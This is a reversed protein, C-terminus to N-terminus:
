GGLRTVTNLLLRALPSRPSTLPNARYYGFKELHYDIVMDDIGAALTYAGRGAAIGRLLRLFGVRKMSDMRATIGAPGPEGAALECEAEDLRTEIEGVRFGCCEGGDLLVSLNNESGGGPGDTLFSRTGELKIHGLAYDRPELITATRGNNLRLHRQGEQGRRPRRRGSAIRDAGLLTKAMAIGHYAYASQHFHASRLEGLLGAAIAKETTEIWPLTACDEAVWVERFAALRATHCFHKFRVVPTDILMDTSRADLAGLQALVSPIANKSVCLYVLDIGALDRLEDLPEVAYEVGDVEQKRASRALIRVVEFHEAARHFAPLAAERVRKGLGIILVKRKTM